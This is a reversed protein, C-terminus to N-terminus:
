NLSKRHEEATVVSCGFASFYVFAAVPPTRYFFTNKFIQCYESSFVYTSNLKMGTYWDDVFTKHGNQRKVNQLLTLLINGSAGIDPQNPCVAIKGTHVVFNYVFGEHDCLVYLKYGWKKPKNPNYQKIRSRRKFPVVQEDICIFEKPKFLKFVNQLHTM